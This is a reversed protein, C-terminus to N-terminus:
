QSDYPSATVIPHLPARGGGPDVMSAPAPLAVPAPGAVARAPGQAAFRPRAPRGFTQRAVPRAKRDLSLNIVVDGTMHAQEVRPEYGAAFAKVLHIGGGPFQARYPNGRVLVGDVVIQATPPSVYVVLANLSPPAPQVATLAPPAAQGGQASRVVGVTPRHVLRPLILFAFVCLLISGTALAAISRPTLWSEVWAQWGQERGEDRDPPLLGTTVQMPVQSDSERPSQAPADAELKSRVIAHPSSTPSAFGIATTDTVDIDVSMSAV